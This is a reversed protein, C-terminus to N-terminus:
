PYEMRDLLYEELSEIRSPVYEQRTKLQALAREPICDIGNLVCEQFPSLNM